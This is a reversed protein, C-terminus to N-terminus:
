YSTFLVVFALAAALLAALTVLFASRRFDGSGGAPPDATDGLWVDTVMKGGAWIPGILRRQIAGATAAESWGANPGPVIAHQKWGIVFSKSASCGKVLLASVTILLWSVRAPIWNMVDDTRAGCWGFELYKPTKYGVMSDMTSVVKFLLLGPLGLLCYWFIPSLFGDTLNESLSEIAARRCAALDMPATDRGVLKSIAARAGQIDNRAAAREVDWGHRLLDRLALLSYILFSNVVVRALIPLQAIAVSVLLVWLSVLTLFLLIGGGYGDFRWKRLLTEFRALTWGMLRVPHAAYYPDGFLLDLLVGAALLWASPRLGLVAVEGVL